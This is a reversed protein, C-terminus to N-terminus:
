HPWQCDCDCIMTSRSHVNISAPWVARKEISGSNHSSGERSLSSYSFQESVHLNCMASPVLIAWQYHTPNVTRSSATDQTRDEEWFFAGTSPIKGKSNVHTRVGNGWFEKPHSYLSLDLRHVCANWWMSEFLDQCEHGLHTIVPLLFVGLLCWGHLCFIVVEITPNFITVYAFIEGLITVGRLYLQPICFFFFIVSNSVAVFLLVICGHLMSSCSPWENWHLQFLLWDSM